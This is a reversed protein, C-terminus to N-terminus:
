EPPRPGFREVLAYGGVASVATVIAVCASLIMAIVFAIIAGYLAIALSQFAIAVWAVSAGLLVTVVPGVVVATVITVDTARSVHGGRRVLSLAVATTVFPVLVLVGVHYLISQAFFYEFVYNTIEFADRGGSKMVYESTALPVLFYAVAGTLGTLVGSLIALSWPDLKRFPGGTTRQPAETM